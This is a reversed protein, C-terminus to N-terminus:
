RGALQDALVKKLVDRAAECESLRRSLDAVAAQAAQLAEKEQRAKAKLRQRYTRSHISQNPHAM